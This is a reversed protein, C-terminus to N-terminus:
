KFSHFGAERFFNSAVFLLTVIVFLSANLIAVARRHFRRSKRFAYVLAVCLWSLYITVEKLSFLFLAQYNIWVLIVGCAIGGSMLFFAMRSSWLNFSEISELSPFSMVSALPAKRRLKFELYLALTSGCAALFFFLEGAVACIVHFPLLHNSIGAEMTRQSSLYPLSLVCVITMFPLAVAAISLWHKKWRSLEIYTLAFMLFLVLLYLHGWISSAIMIFDRLGFPYYRALGSALFSVVAAYFFIRAVFIRRPSAAHLAVMAGISAASILVIAVVFIKAYMM